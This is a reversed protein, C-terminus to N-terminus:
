FDLPVALFYFHYLQTLPIIASIIWTFKKGVIKTLKHNVHFHFPTHIRRAQMQDKYM